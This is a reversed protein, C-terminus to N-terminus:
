EKLIGVSNFYQKTRLMKHFTTRFKAISYYYIFFPLASNLITLLISVRYILMITSNLDESVAIYTASVSSPITTVYYALVNLGVAKCARLVKAKSFKNLTRYRNIILFLSILQVLLAVFTFPSLLSLAALNPEFHCVPLGQHFYTTSIPAMTLGFNYLSTLTFVMIIQLLATRKAKKHDVLQQRYATPTVIARCRDICMLSQLVLSIEFPIYTLVGYRSCFTQMTSESEFVTAM